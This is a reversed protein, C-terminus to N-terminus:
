GGRNLVVVVDAGSIKRKEICEQIQGFLFSLNSKMFHAAKRAPIVVGLREGKNIPLQKKYSLFSQHLEKAKTTLQITTEASEIMFYSVLLISRYDFM